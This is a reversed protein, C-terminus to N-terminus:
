CCCKRLRRTDPGTCRHVAGSYDGYRNGPGRAGDYKCFRFLTHTRTHTHLVRSSRGWDLEGNEVPSSVGRTGLCPLLVASLTKQSAPFHHIGCWGPERPEWPELLPPCPLGPGDPCQLHGPVLILLIWGRVGKGRTRCTAWFPQKIVVPWTTSFLSIM